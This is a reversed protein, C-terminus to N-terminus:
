WFGIQPPRPEAVQHVSTGPSPIFKFMEDPIDLDFAVRSMEWGSFAQDDFYAECRLVVGREADVLLDYRNAGIRMLPPSESPVVTARPLGRVRIAERRIYSLTGRAELWLYPIIHYPDLLEGLAPDQEELLQAVPREPTSQAEQNTTLENQKRDYFWWNPGNVVVIREPVEDSLGLEYRWSATQRTWLQITYERINASPNAAPRLVVASGTEHRDVSRMVAQNLLDPRYWARVIVHASEFRRPSGYLLLLIRELTIM